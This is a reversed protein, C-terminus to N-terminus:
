VRKCKGDTTGEPRRNGSEYGEPFLWRNEGKIPNCRDELKTAPGECADRKRDAQLGGGEDKVYVM